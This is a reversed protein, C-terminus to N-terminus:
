EDSESTENKNKMRRYAEDRQHQIENLLKNIKRHIRIRIEPVTSNDGIQALIDYKLTRVCEKFESLLIFIKVAINKKLENQMPLDRIEEILFEIIEDVSPM